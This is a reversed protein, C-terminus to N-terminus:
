KRYLDYWIAVTKQCGEEVTYLPTYGLLDHAKKSSFGYSLSAVQYTAPTLQALIGPVRKRTVRQYTEFIWGLVIFLNQPMRVAITKRPLSANCFTCLMNFLDAQFLPDNNSVCFPLGGIRGPNDWLGKELLIHGWAVNEVYVYDVKSSPTLMVSVGDTMTKEALFGDNPGFVASCPRLIGTVLRSGNALPTGNADIVIKEAQAKSWCYHNLTTEATVYPSDEDMEMGLTELNLSVNSSSTQILM